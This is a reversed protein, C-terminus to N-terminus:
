LVLFFAYGSTMELLRIKQPLAEEPVQFKGGQTSEGIAAVVERHLWDTCSYCISSHTQRQSASPLGKERECGKIEQWVIVM